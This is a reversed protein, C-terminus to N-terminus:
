SHADSSDTGTAREYCFAESQTQQYASFMAHTSPPLIIKVLVKLLKFPSSTVNGVGASGPCFELRLCINEVTETPQKRCQRHIGMQMEKGQAQKGVAPQEPLRNCCAKVSVPTQLTVLVYHLRLVICKAQAPFASQM